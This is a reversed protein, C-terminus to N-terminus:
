GEGEGSDPLPRMGAPDNSLAVLDRPQKWHPIKKGESVVIRDM